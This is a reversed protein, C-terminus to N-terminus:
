SHAQRMFRSESRAAEVRLQRSESTYDIKCGGLLIGAAEIELFRLGEDLPRIAVGSIKVVNWNSSRNLLRPETLMNLGLAAVQDRDMVVEMEPQDLKTDIEPDSDRGPRRDRLRHHHAHGAVEANLQRM